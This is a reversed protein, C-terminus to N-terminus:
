ALCDVFPLGIERQIKEAAQLLEADKSKRAVLQLSVPAGTQKRVDYKDYCWRDSDNQPIYGPDQGDKEPDVRTVPFTIAPYDLLNWLSTYGWYRSTGHVPAPMPYAPCLIVDMNPAATNWEKLYSYRFQDRKRTWDWLGEIDLAEIGPQDRVTWAPLPLIPEGSLALNEIFAKGGDPGYLRKLIELADNQKFPQWEIVQVGRTSKLKDVVESLARKIPPAPQVIGDTWM